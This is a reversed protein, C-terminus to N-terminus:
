QFCHVPITSSSPLSKTGSHVSHWYGDFSNDCATNLHLTLCWLALMIAWNTFRTGWFGFSRLKIELIWKSAMHLSMGRYSLSLSLRVALWGLRIPSSWTWHSVSDSLVPHSAVSPSVWDVEQRWLCLCACLYATVHIFCVYARVSSCCFPFGVNILCAPKQWRIGVLDPRVEKSDDWGAWDWRCLELTPREEPWIRRKDRDKRWVGTWKEEVRRIRQSGLHKM